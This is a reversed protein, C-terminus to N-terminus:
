LSLLTIIIVVNVNLMNKTRILKKMIHETIIILTILVAPLRRIVTSLESSKWITWILQKVSQERSVIVSMSYDIYSSKMEEEVNVKIIRDNEIM